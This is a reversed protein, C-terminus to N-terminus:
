VPLLSALTMEADLTPPFSRMRRMIADANSIQLSMSLQTFFYAGAEGRKKNTGSCVRNVLKNLMVLSERAYGGTSEISIPCFLLGNAHCKSRYKQNKRKAADEAISLAGCGKAYNAFNRKSGTSTVNTITVDLCLHKGGEFHEVYLDAPRELPHSRILNMKEPFAVINFCHKAFKDIVRKISEHRYGKEGGNQCNLAHASM